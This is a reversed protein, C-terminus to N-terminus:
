SSRIIKFFCLLYSSKCVAVMILVKQYRQLSLYIPLCYMFLGMQIYGIKICCHYGPSSFVARKKKVFTNPVVYTNIQFFYTFSPNQRKVYVSILKFCIMSSVLIYFQLFEPLFWLFVNRYRQSLNRLNSGWFWSVSFFTHQNAWFWTLVIVGVYFILRCSIGSCM